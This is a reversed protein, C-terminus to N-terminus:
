AGAFREPLDDLVRLAGVEIEIRLLREVVAQDVRNHRTLQRFASLIAPELPARDTRRASVDLGLRRRGFVGGAAAAARSVVLPCSGPGQKAFSPRGGYGQSPPESQCMM